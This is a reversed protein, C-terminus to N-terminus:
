ISEFPLAAHAGLLESNLVGYKHAVNSFILWKFILIIYVYIYIDKM